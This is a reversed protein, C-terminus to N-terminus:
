EVVKVLAKGTIVFRDSILSGGCKFILQGDNEDISGLSAFHPLEGIEAMEGGIIRSTSVAPSPNKGYFKCMRIAKRAPCCYLFKTGYRGQKLKNVETTKKENMLRSVYQCKNVTRLVGLEVGDVSCVDDIKCQVKLITFALLILNSKM